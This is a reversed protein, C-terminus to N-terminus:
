DRVRRLEESIKSASAPDSFLNKSGQIPDVALLNQLTVRLKRQTLFESM